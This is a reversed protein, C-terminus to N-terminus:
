FADGVNLSAHSFVFTFHKSLCELLLVWKEEVETLAKHSEKVLLIHCFHGEPVQVAPSNCSQCTRSGGEPFGAVIHPTQSSSILTPSGLNAVRISLLWTSPCWPVLCAQSGGKARRVWGAVLQVYNFSHGLWCWLSCLLGVQDERFELGVSSHCFSFEQKLASLKLTYNTECCFIIFCNSRETWSNARSVFTHM